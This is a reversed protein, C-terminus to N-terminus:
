VRVQYAKAKAATPRFRRAVISLTVEGCVAYEQIGHPQRFLCALSNSRLRRAVSREALASARSLGALRKHSSSETQESNSQVEFCIFGHRAAIGHQQPPDADEILDYGGPWALRPARPLRVGQG